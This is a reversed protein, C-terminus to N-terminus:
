ASTVIKDRWEENEEKEEWNEKKKLWTEEMWDFNAENLFNKGGGTNKESYKGGVCLPDLQQM